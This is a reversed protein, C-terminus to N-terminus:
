VVSKRDLVREVEKIVDDATKTNNPEYKNLLIEGNHALIGDLTQATINLNEIDRLMRVSQANHCFYGIGEREAINNLFREGTHGFPTHGM